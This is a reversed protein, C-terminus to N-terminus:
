INATILKKILKIGAVGEWFTTVMVCVPKQIKRQCCDFPKKEDKKPMVDMVEFCKKFHPSTLGCRM